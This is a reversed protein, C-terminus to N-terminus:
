VMTFKHLHICNLIKMVYKSRSFIKYVSRYALITIKLCCTDGHGCDTDM